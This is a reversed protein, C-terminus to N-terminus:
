KGAIFGTLIEDEELASLEEEVAWSVWDYPCPTFITLSEFRNSRIYTITITKTEFERERERELERRWELQPKLNLEKSSSANEERV